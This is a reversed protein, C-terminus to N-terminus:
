DEEIEYVVNIKQLYELLGEITTIYNNLALTEVLSALDTSSIKMM